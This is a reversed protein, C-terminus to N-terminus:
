HTLRSFLNILSHTLSVNWIPDVLLICMCLCERGVDWLPDALSLGFVVVCM